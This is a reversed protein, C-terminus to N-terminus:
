YKLWQFDDHALVLNHGEGWVDGETAFRLSGIQILPSLSDCQNADFARFAKSTAKLTSRMTDDLKSFETRDVLMRRCSSIPDHGQGHPIEARTPTRINLTMAETYLVRFNTSGYSLLTALTKLLIAIYDFLQTAFNEPSVELLHALEHEHPIMTDLPGDRFPEGIRLDINLFLHNITHSLAPFRTWTLSFYPRGHSFTITLDYNLEKSAAMHHIAQKVEFYVQRCVRFLGRYCRLPLDKMVYSESVAMVGRIQPDLKEELLMGYIQNRLELPLDLFGAM